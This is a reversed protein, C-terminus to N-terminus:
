GPIRELSPVDSFTQLNSVVVAGVQCLFGFTSFKLEGGAAMVCGLTTFGIIVALLKNFGSICGNLPRNDVVVLPDVYATSKSMTGIVLQIILTLIPIFAQEITLTAFHPLPPSTNNQQPVPNSVRVVQSHPLGVKLMQVFSVSLHVYATNSLILSISFLAGLPLITRLWTPFQMLANILAFCNILKDDFSVSIDIKDQRFRPFILRLVRTGVTQYCLHAKSTKRSM